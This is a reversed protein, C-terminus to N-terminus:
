LLKKKRSRSLLAQYKDVLDKSNTKLYSETIENKDGLIVEKPSLFSAYLPKLNEYLYQNAWARAKEANALYLSYNARMDLLAAALDHVSCDFNEGYAVRDSYALGGSYALRGPYYATSLISSPVARVLQSQCIEVQGTNNTAIVPIGLAMAERPQISFGEGKSPSVYCDIQTFLELYEEKGRPIQTYKINNSELEAIKKTILNRIHKEAFRSNIVLRVRPDNGFAQHFAEILKLQNKRDWGASFNGFVLVDQACQKLPQHFFHEFDLALPVIFVPIKVGSNQYVDILFSSPVIVADFRTNLIEVWESPIQTSEWMSYAIKIRNRPCSDMKNIKTCAEEWPLSLMEEYVVVSGWLPNKKVVLKQLQKINKADKLRRTLHININLKNQFAQALEAGQRGLGDVLDIYGVISLDPNPKTRLTFALAIGIIPIIIFFTKIKM